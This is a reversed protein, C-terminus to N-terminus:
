PRRTRRDITEILQPVLGGMYGILWAVPIAIMLPITQLLGILAAVLAAATLLRGTWVLGPHRAAAILRACFATGLVVALGILLTSPPM